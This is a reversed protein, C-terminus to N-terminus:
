KADIQKILAAAEKLADPMVEEEAPAEAEEGEAGSEAGATAPDVPAEAELGAGAEGTPDAALAAMIAEAQEPPLKGSQVLMAVLEALQELELPGDAGPLTAGAAVEPDEAAAGSDMMATADEAGAMMAMKAIPDTTSELAPILFNAIKDMGELDEASADKVLEYLAAQQQAVAAQKVAEAQQLESAYKMIGAYSIVADDILERAADVGAQKTLVAEALRVGEETQLISSALKMLLEPSAQPYVEADAAPKETAAVQSAPAAVAAAAQKNGILGLSSLRSVVETTKEAISSLKSTPSTVADDKADGNIVAPNGPVEGTAGSGLAGPFKNTAVDQVGNENTPKSAPLQLKKPDNGHPDSPMAPAQKETPDQVDTVPDTSANARKAAAKRQMAAVRNVLDETTNM